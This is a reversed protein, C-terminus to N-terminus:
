AEPRTTAGNASPQKESTIEYFVFPLQAEHQVQVDATGLLIESCDWYGGQPWRLPGDPKGDPYAGNEPYAMGAGCLCRSTAAYILGSM